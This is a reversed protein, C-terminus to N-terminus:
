FNWKYCTIGFKSWTKEVNIKQLYLDIPYEQIYESFRHKNEQLYMKTEERIDNTDM